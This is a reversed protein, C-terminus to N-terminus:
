NAYIAEEQISTSYKTFSSFSSETVTTDPNYSSHLQIPIIDRFYQESFNHPKVFLPFRGDGTNKFILVSQKLYITNTGFTIQYIFGHNIRKNKHLAQRSIGLISATESGNVFDKMPFEQLTERMKTKIASEIALAMEETYMLDNCRDCKYYPIGQVVILGVYPDNVELRDKSEKYTGECKDCEMSVEM